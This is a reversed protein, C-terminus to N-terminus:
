SLMVTDLKYKNLGERPESMSSYDCGLHIDFNGNIGPGCVVLPETDWENPNDENRDGFLKYDLQIFDDVMVQYHEFGDDPEKPFKLTAEFLSKKLFWYEWPTLILLSSM